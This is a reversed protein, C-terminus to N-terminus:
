RDLYNSFYFLSATEKVILIGIKAVVAQEAHILFIHQEWFMPIQLFSSIKDKAVTKDVDFVVDSHQKESHETYM